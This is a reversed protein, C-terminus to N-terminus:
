HRNLLRTLKGQIRERRAETEATLLKANKIAGKSIEALIIDGERATAPLEGAAVYEQEHENDGGLLRAKGDAISDVTYKKM